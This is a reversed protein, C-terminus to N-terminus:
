NIRLLWFTFAIVGTNGFSWSFLNQFRENQSMNRKILTVLTLHLAFIASLFYNPSLAHWTIKKHWVLSSQVLQSVFDFQYLKSIGDTNPLTLHFQFTPFILTHFDFSTTMALKAALHLRVDTWEILAFYVLLFILAVLFTLPYYLYNWFGRVVLKQNVAFPYIV